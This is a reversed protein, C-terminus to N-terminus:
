TKSKVKFSIYSKQELEEPDGNLNLSFLKRGTESTEVVVDGDYAAESADYQKSSIGLCVGLFTAVLALTGVVETIMPLNWIDGLGFYLSSFAPIYVQVLRKGVSYARDTLMIRNNTRQLM